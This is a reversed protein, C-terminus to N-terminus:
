PLNLKDKLFRIRDLRREHEPLAMQCRLLDEDALALFNMGGKTAARVARKRCLEWSDLGTVHRFIDISGVPSNLCFVAQKELWSLSKKEILSWDDDNAGWEAQLEALARHCRLRNESSDEIWFDVDFTTDPRHRLFFNMGGILLYDVEHRNFTDLIKEVNMTM